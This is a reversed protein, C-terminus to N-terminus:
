QAVYGLEPDEQRKHNLGLKELYLDYIMKEDLELLLGVNVLFIFVDIWEERATQFMLNMEGDTLEGYNKWPKHFPLERLMEVMEENVFYSHTHILDVREKVSLEDFSKVKEQFELQKDLVDQLKIKTM